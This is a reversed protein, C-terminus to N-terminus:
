YQGQNVFTKDKRYYNKWIKETEIMTKSHHVKNPTLNGISMHPRDNNYLIIMSKLLQKADKIHNVHYADLYEKSCYQIGRDSHHILSFPREAGRFASLAQLSEM